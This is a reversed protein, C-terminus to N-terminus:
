PRRRVERLATFDGLPGIHLGDLSRQAVVVNTRNWIPIYPAELAIIQQARSYYRKRDAEDLSTTALELFRDVEENQYLGRNFGSPPLESSHFVRRLMDPDVMAGGVWQLAFIQFNGKLVDAYFTAFEYSRIDLDIGVSRLDQQIAAAQIRTEESNSIKLSLRLRPRPGPGDPDRYGADELLRGAREPDYTFRHVDPEFAWALDPILGSAPRGLGRRLYQIIADRNAAYGIAHRVRVDRLVGDRMNFGLYFLDLGASRQITFAGSKDLQYVIDPPLDNVVLDTTGKRLELGRMVDDPVVKMVIGANDPAGGWYDDFASLTLTDDVDRRVFRYPGAGIPRVKLSDGADAPVIPPVGVLQLPFAAFPESLRFRVTYDDLATVEKLPRFAGKFPSVLGPDLVSRFTYVVDRSTLEHGDHFRVGRRLHAIYTLPDPNDLRSALAPRVRLDDGHELLPSYILQSMRQTAEDNGLRPDLTTPGSRVAITIIRPDAPAAARCGWAAGAVLAVLAARRPTM